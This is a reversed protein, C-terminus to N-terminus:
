PPSPLPVREGSNYQKSLMSIGFLLLLCLNRDVHYYLSGVGIVTVRLPSLFFLPVNTKEKKEWGHRPVFHYKEPEICTPRPHASIEPELNSFSPSLPPPCNPALLLPNPNWTAHILKRFFLYFLFHKQTHTHSIRAPFIRTTIPAYKSLLSIDHWAVIDLFLFLCFCMSDDFFPDKPQALSPWTCYPTRLALAM